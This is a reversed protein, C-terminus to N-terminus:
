NGEFSTAASQQLETTARDILSRYLGEQAYGRRKRATILGSRVRAIV